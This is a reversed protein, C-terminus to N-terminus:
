RIVARAGMLFEAMYGEHPLDVSTWLTSHPGFYLNRITPEVMCADMVSEDGSLLTLVLSDRLPAIGAERSWPAVFVCPFPLETRAQPQRSDALLFVGPRLAGSGDGLNAALEHRHVATVDDSVLRSAMRGLAEAQEYPRVPLVADPHEPPRPQLESLRAALEEALERARADGEVFIATTNICAIGGDGAVADLLVEIHERWDVDATILLKSRGPGRVLINPDNSYRKVINDGGFAMGLDGGRLFTDTVSHQSPLLALYSPDVGGALLARILRRPTYPDRRSPRVVVRYGLGLAVMWEAHPGPHNGPAEVALLRGRPAWVAAGSAVKPDRWDMVAGSPRQYDVTRRMARASDAILEKGNEVARLPMGIVRAVAQCYADPKEGDLEADAFLEGAAAIAAFRDEASQNPGERVESFVRNVLLNPAIGLDAVPADSVDTIIERDHSRYEGSPRIVEISEV